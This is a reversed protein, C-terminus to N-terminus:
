KPPEGSYMISLRKKVWKFPCNDWLWRDVKVPNNMIPGDGKGNEGYAPTPCFHRCYQPRKSTAVWHHLDCWQEYTGYIKDIAAM